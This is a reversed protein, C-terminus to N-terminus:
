VGQPDKTGFSTSGGRMAKLHQAFKISRTKLAAFSKSLRWVVGLARSTVRRDKPLTIRLEGALSNAVASDVIELTRALDSNKSITACADAFCGRVLNLRAKADTWFPDAIAGPPVWLTM